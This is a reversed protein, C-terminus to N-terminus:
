EPKKMSQPLIIRGYENDLYEIDTISDDDSYSIYAQKSKMNNDEYMVVIDVITPLEDLNQLEPLTYSNDDIYVKVGKVVTEEVVEVAEGQAAIIADVESDIQKSRITYTAFWIGVLFGLFLVVGIVVFSPKYKNIVVDNKESM